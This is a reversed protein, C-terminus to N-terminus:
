SEIAHPPLAPLVSEEIEEGDLSPESLRRIAGNVRISSPLGAVLYLDSGGQRGLIDLWEVLRSDHRPRNLGASNLEDMLRDLQPTDDM